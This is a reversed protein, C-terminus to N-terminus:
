KKTRNHQIEGPYLTQSPPQKFFHKNLMCSILSKITVYNKNNYIDNTFQILPEKVYKQKVL